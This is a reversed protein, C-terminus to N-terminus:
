ARAPNNQDRAASAQASLEEFTQASVWSTILLLLFLCAVLSRIKENAGLSRIGVVVSGWLPSKASRPLIRDSAKIPHYKCVRLTLRYGLLAIRKITARM